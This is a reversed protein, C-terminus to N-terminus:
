RLPELDIIAINSFFPLTFETAAGPNTVDELKAGAAAAYAGFSSPRYRGLVRVRPSAANNQNRARSFNLVVLRARTGDGTLRAIMTTSGYIRVLRKDDGLKERVRAAFDSPNVASELPFDPTGIEVNLDLSPDPRSVVRFLLNRRTLMNLAEPLLPSGNDVVGVNALGPMPAAAHTKLFQLVNGLEQVDAQQPNLIAEVDYAFAEAAALPAAGAVLTGYNAKRLGRQFRWANSDIWATSTAMAENPVNRTGPSTVTQFLGAEAGSPASLALGQTILVSAVPTVYVKAQGSPVGTQALPLAVSICIAAFAGVVRRNM